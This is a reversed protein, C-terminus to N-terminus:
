DNNKNVAKGLWLVTYVTAGDYVATGAVATKSKCQQQIHAHAYRVLTIREQDPRINIM